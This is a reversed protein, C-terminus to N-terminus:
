RHGGWDHGYRKREERWDDGFLAGGILIVLVPLLFILWVKVVTFFLVVALVGSLPVLAAYARHAVPRDDWREAPNSRPAAVSSKRAPLADFRPRPDPLDSFLELLEGRTRVTSVKATREGYEELDLRGSSMHEGLARVADEREADSIRIEDGPRENM